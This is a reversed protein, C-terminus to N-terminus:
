RLYYTTYIEVQQGKVSVLGPRSWTALGRLEMYDDALPQWDLIIEVEIEGRDGVQIRKKKQLPQSEALDAYAQGEEALLFEIESRLNYLAAQRYTNDITAARYYLAVIIVFLVVILLIQVSFIADILIFGAQNSRKGDQGKSLTTRINKHKQRECFLHKSGM